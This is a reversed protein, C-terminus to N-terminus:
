SAAVGEPRSHDGGSARPAKPRSSLSPSPQSSLFQSFGLTSKQAQYLVSSLRDLCEWASRDQPHKRAQRIVRRAKNFAERNASRYAACRDKNRGIKKSGKAESM